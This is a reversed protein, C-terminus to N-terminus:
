FPMEWQFFYGHKKISRKHNLNKVNLNRLWRFKAPHLPSLYMLFSTSDLTIIKGFLQKDDDFWTVFLREKKRSVYFTVKGM